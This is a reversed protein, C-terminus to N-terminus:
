SDRPARLHTYSVPSTMYDDDFLHHETFWASAAGLREAEQCAELTFGYLRAPDQRRNAPNRLDFYVGVKM